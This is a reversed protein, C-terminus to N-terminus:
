LRASAVACFRFRGVGDDPAWLQFSFFSSIQVLAACHWLRELCTEIEGWMWTGSHSTCEAKSVDASPPYGWLPWNWFHWPLCAAAFLPHSVAWPSYSQSMQQCASALTFVRCLWQSSSNELRGGRGRNGSTINSRPSGRRKLQRSLESQGWSECSMRRM